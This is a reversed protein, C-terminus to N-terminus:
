PKEEPVSEKRPETTETRKDCSLRGTRIITAGHGMQRKRRSTETSEAHVKLGKAWSRRAVQAGKEGQHPLDGSNVGCSQDSKHEWGPLHLGRQRRSAKGDPPGMDRSPTVESDERLSAQCAMGASYGWGDRPGAALESRQGAPTLGTQRIAM